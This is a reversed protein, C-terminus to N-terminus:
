ALKAAVPLSILLIFMVFVTVLNKWHSNNFPIREISMGVKTYVIFDCWKAGTLGMQGRVQDYYEHDEKLKPKNDCLELYFNKDSCADVPTVSFKSSPCKIELLGFKDEVSESTIDIVKGDPSCGLVYLKPSVFFGSRKVQVPHGIDNM